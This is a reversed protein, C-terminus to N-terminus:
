ECFKCKPVKKQKVFELMEKVDNEHDCKKNGNHLIHCTIDNSHISISYKKNYPLICIEKVKNNIKKGFIKQTPEWSIQHTINMFSFEEPKKDNDNYKKSLKFRIQHRNSRIFRNLHSHTLEPLYYIAFNNTTNDLEIADMDNSRGSTTWEFNIFPTRGKNNQINFEVDKM